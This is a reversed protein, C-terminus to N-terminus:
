TVNVRLLAGHFNPLPTLKALSTARVRSLVERRVRHRITTLTRNTPTTTAIAKPAANM